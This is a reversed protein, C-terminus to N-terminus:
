NLIRRARCFNNTGTNLRSFKIVDGTQPAHIYMGNGAYMGVHYPSNYDGFFVLDGVQLNNKDVEVGDYIQTYTTRSINIGFHKYVYQMFGSCDFGPIPTSGGWVYPTGLFQTAYSLVNSQSVSGNNNNNSNNNNTNNTNNNNNSNNSDNNSNNSSNNNSSDNNSNNNNKAADAADKQAQLSALIDNYEQQSVALKDDISSKLAESQSVLETVNNKAQDLKALNTDLETKLSVLNDKEKNLDNSINEVLERNTKLDDIVNKNYKGIVQAAEVKDILDSFNKSTFLFEIFVDQGNKYASRSFANFKEESAKLKVRLQELEKEIAQVEAEKEQIESQVYEQKLILETAEADIAQIQSNLDDIKAQVQNQDNKYQSIQSNVNNLDTETPEAIVTTPVFLALILTILLKKM